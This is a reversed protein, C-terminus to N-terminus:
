PKELASRDFLTQWIGMEGARAEATARARLTAAHAPDRPAILGALLWTAYPIMLGAGTAEYREVGQQLRAEGAPDGGAAEAWGRVIQAWAKWYAYEHRDSLLELEAAAELAAPAAGTFQHLCADFALAFALSHPHALARAATVAAASETLGDGGLFWEAWGLHCRALVAPDSGYDFRQEKDRTPDYLSLATLLERRADEFRGLYLLTLGLPRHLQMRDGPETVDASLAMVRESIAQGAGVDGRVLHYTHLGRLARRLGRHEGLREAAEMAKQFAASVEPDANGRMATVQAALTVQLRFERAIRDPVDTACQLLLLAVRCHEAAEANTSRAAARRAAIEYYEAADRKHGAAGFHRALLEPRLAATQPFRQQLAEAVQLHRARRPQRLLSGYAADRILAHRFVYAEGAPAGAIAEPVIFRAAVLDRLAAPLGPRDAEDLAAELLDFQFSRGIVSAAQAIRKADALSDLQAALASHLTMPVLDADTNEPRAARAVEEAFLPVGDTRRVIEDLTADATGPPAAAAALARADADTLRDLRLYASPIAPRDTPEPRSTMLLMTAPKGPAADACAAALADLVDRTSADAWQMDEVLFLLPQGPSRATLVAILAQTLQQRRRGPTDALADADEPLACDLLVALPPAFEEDLGAASLARCLAARRVARDAEAGLGLRGALWSLLPQFATAQDDAACTLRVIPADALCHSRFERVLRSKGMGAEAEIAVVSGRGALANHWLADLRRLEDERGLFPMDHDPTPDAHLRQGVAEFAHVPLALGALKFLGRDELALSRDVLRATAASVLVQGPTAAAQLRAATSTTEGVIAAPEIQRGHGLDGVVVMGTHVGFRARLQGPLRIGAAALRDAAAALSDRASLAARVARAADDERARPFGFYALIGDGLYQGVTGGRHEIAGGCADRFALLVHRLDEPDLAAAIPTSGVLDCFLITLPRREGAANPRAALLTGCQGCFRM